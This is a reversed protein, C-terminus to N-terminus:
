PRDRVPEARPPDLVDVGLARLSATLGAPDPGARLIRARGHERLDVVASATGPLAGVDVRAAVADRVAQPVDAITRPDPGGPDNASTAVLPVDISAFAPDMRPARIGISGVADGSAEAARGSPDPVICTTTGPLLARVLDALDRDVPRLMQDLAAPGYVLVQCPQSRPRRKIAYLLAVATPDDLLGALGYVTDTPLLAAEGRLLADRAVAIDDALRSV